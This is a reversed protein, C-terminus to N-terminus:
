VQNVGGMGILVCSPWSLMLRLRDPADNGICPPLMWETFASAFYVVSCLVKCWTCLEITEGSEPAIAVLPHLDDAPM